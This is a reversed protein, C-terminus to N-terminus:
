SRRYDGQSPQGFIRSLRPIFGPVENAYKTYASGFEAITDREETKALKVYM